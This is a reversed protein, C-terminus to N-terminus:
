FRKYSGLEKSKFVCLLLISYNFKPLLNTLITLFQVSNFQTSNGNM